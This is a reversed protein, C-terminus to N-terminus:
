PCIIKGNLLKGKELPAGYHPCNPAYAHVQGQYRALLVEPGGELTPFTKLGGEPLSASDTLDIEPRMPQSIKPSTICRM